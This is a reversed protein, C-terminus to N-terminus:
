CDEGDTCAGIDSTRSLEDHIRPGMNIVSRRGTKRGPVERNM